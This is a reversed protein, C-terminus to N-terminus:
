KTSRSKLLDGGLTCAITNIRNSTQKMVYSNGLVFDFQQLEGNVTEIYHHTM